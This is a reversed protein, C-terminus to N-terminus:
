DRKMAEFVQTSSPADIPTEANETLIALTRYMGHILTIEVIERESFHAGLETWVDPTAKTQAVVQELYAFLAREAPDWLNPDYDRKQLAERQVDSTGAEASTPVHQVWEYEGGEQNAAHLITLEIHKPSLASERNMVTNLQLLPVFASEAHAMTQFIHLPPLKSAIERVAESAQELNLLSLRPM